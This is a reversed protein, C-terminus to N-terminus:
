QVSLNMLLDAICDNKFIGGCMLPTAVSDQSIKTKLFQWARHNLAALQPTFSLWEFTTSFISTLKINTSV